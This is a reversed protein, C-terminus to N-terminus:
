RGRQEISPIALESRGHASHWQTQRKFPAVARDRCERCRHHRWRGSVQSGRQEVDLPEHLGQQPLATPPLKVHATWGCDPLVDLRDIRRCSRALEIEVEHAADVLVRELYDHRAGLSHRIGLLHGRREAAVEVAAADAKIEARAVALGARDDVALDHEAFLHHPVRAM